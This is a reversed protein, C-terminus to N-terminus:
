MLIKYVVAIIKKIGAKTGQLMAQQTAIREDTSAILIKIDAYFLALPLVKRYIVLPIIKDVWNHMFCLRFM